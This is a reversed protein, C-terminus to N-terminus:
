LEAPRYQKLLAIINQTTYTQLMQYESNTVVVRRHINSVKKQGVVTEAPKVLGQM